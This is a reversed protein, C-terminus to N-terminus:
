YGVCILYIWNSSFIFDCRITTGDATPSYSNEFDVYQKQPTGIICERIRPEGITPCKTEKWECVLLTRFTLFNDPKESAPFPLTFAAIQKNKKFAIWAAQRRERRWPTKVAEYYSKPVHSKSPSRVFHSHTPPVNLVNIVPRNIQFSPIQDFMARSMSFSTRTCKPGRKAIDISISRDKQKQVAVLKEKVYEANIMCDANISLIFYNQRYKSPIASHAFSSPLCSTYYPINYIPDNRLDFGVTISDPPLVFKLALVEAGPFGAHQFSIDTDSVIHRNIDDDPPDIASTTSKTSDVDHFIKKELISFTLADKVIAHYVHKTKYPQTPEWYLLYKM